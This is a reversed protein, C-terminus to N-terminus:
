FLFFQVLFSCIKSYGKLLYPISICKFYLSVIPYKFYLFTNKISLFFFFFLTHCTPLKIYNNMMIMVLMMMNSYSGLPIM